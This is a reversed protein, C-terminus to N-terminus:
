PIAEGPDATPEDSNQANQLDKIQQELDEVRQKLITNELELTRVTRLVSVTSVDSADRGDTKTSNLFISNM